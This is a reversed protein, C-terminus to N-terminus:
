GEAYKPFEFRSGIAKFGEVAPGSVVPKDSPSDVKKTRTTHYGAVKTGDAKPYPKVWAKRIAALSLLSRTPSRMSTKSPLARLGSKSNKTSLTRGQLRNKFQPIYSKPKNKKEKWKIEIEDIQGTLFREASNKYNDKEAYGDGPQPNGLRDYIKKEHFWLVAQLGAPTLNEGLEFGEDRSRAQVEELTKHMIQRLLRRHNGGFPSAMTLDTVTQKLQAAEKNVESNDAYSIKDPSTSEAYVRERAKAWEYILDQDTFKGREKVEQLNKKLAQRDFGMLEEDTATKNFLKGARKIRNDFAQQSLDILEGTIRGITRM